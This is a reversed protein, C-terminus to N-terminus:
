FKLNLDVQFLNERQKSALIRRTNYYDLALWINKWFAFNLIFEMGKVDTSGGYFDSDPFVDPWADKELCRYSYELRWDGFKRMDLHGVRVGALYGRNDHDPDPNYVYEGFLGFYPVFDLSFPKKFGLEGSLVPANYDFVLKGEATTNTGSSFELANEKVNVFYYYALALQLDIDRTIKWIFGPQIAALYPDKANTKEDLIYTAANFYLDLKPLLKFRLKAAAGEPTIDGDWVLDDPRYLPNYFKGGILDFWNAPTFEAFATDIRVNKKSFTNEFTETGSRPDDSGSILGLGVKVQDM